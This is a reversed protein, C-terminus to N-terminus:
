PMRYVLVLYGVTAIAIVFLNRLGYDDFVFKDTKYIYWQVLLFLTIAAPLVYHLIFIMRETTSSVYSEHEFIRGNLAFDTGGISMDLFYKNSEEGCDVACSDNKEWELSENFFVCGEICSSPDLGGLVIEQRVTGAPITLSGNGGPNLVLDGSCYNSLYVSNKVCSGEVNLCPVYPIIKTAHLYERQCEASATFASFLFVLAVFVPPRM